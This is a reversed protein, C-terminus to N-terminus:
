PKEIKSKAFAIQRMDALHKQVAAMQGASGSGESPRVGCDWLDDILKQAMTPTLTVLPGPGNADIAYPEIEVLEAPKATYCKDGQVQDLFLNISGSRFHGKAAHIKLELDM